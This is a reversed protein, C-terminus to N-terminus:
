EDDPDLDRYEGHKLYENNEFDHEASGNSALTAVEKLLRKSESEKIKHYLGLWLPNICDSENIKGALVNEEFEIYEQDIYGDMGRNSLIEEEIQDHYHEKTKSM